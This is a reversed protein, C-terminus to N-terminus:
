LDCDTRKSPTETRIYKSKLRLLSQVVEFKSKDVQEVFAAFENQLEIKPIFVKLKRIKEMGLAAKATDASSNIIYTNLLMLMYMFYISNYVKPNPRIKAVNPALHYKFQDDIIAVDGINAGVYTMVVDGSALQSRPLSDSVENSIYSLDKKNLRGNKVNQAKVMVVDGSEKYHIYQTYEFSALKTVFCNDGILASPWRMSNNVPDGFIEIFRSKILEDYLKLQKKELDIVNTIVNINNVIESQICLSPVNIELDCLKNYKLALRTSGTSETSIQHQFNTSRFFLELYEPLLDDSIIEFVPYAPSVIGIEPATLRNIFFLGTDSMSRYTFQGKRIIKYGINQVSAIQKNFYETQSVIGNQSSTLVEYQNNITSRESLEKLLNKLKTKMM